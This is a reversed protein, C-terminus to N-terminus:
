MPAWVRVYDVDTTAPLPTGSTLADTGSGLAQSIAMIYRKQFAPDASTNVLCTTGNIGVTISTATWDVTYTNWVGRQANCNWATNTGPVAGGNDTASYHLYPIALGPYNSYTEAVDIEGSVPWNVASYRDDPWMWVSEQLGPATTATTRMKIEYHGYQQSFLHWTSVTPAEYNSAPYGNCPVPTSVQAATLHLSGGSVNIYRPDNVTCAYASADGTVFGTSVVWKSTDLKTSNFEDDFTCKYLRSNIINYGCASSGGNVSGIAQAAPSVVCVAATVSMAAVARVVM